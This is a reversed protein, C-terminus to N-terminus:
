KTNNRNYGQGTFILISHRERKVRRAVLINNKKITRIKPYINTYREVVDVEKIVGDVVAQRRILAHNEKLKLRTGDNLLATAGGNKGLKKLDLITVESGVLNM